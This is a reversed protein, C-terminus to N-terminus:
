ADTLLRAVEEEARRKTGRFTRSRYRPKGTISDRGLYVRLEWAEGKRRMSGRMPFRYCIHSKYPIVGARRDRRCTLFRRQGASKGQLGLPIRVRTALKFPHHGRGSSSPAM